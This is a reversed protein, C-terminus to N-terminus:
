TYRSLKTSNYNLNNIKFYTRYSWPLSVYVIRILRNLKWNPEQQQFPCKLITHVSTVATMNPSSPIANLATLAWKVLVLVVNQMLSESWM